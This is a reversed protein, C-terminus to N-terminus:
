IEEIIRYRLKLTEEPFAINTKGDTTFLYIGFEAEQHGTESLFSFKDGNVFYTWKDNVKKIELLMPDGPYYGDIIESVQLPKLGYPNYLNYQGTGDIMLSPIEGKETKLYIGILFGKSGSDISFEIAIRSAGKLPGGWGKAFGQDMYAPDNTEFVTYDGEEVWIKSQIMNSESSDKKEVTECSLLAFIFIFIIALRKMRKGKKKFSQSIFRFM